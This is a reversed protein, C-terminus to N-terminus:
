KVICLRIKARENSKIKWKTLFVKKEEKREKLFFFLSLFYCRICIYVTYACICLYLM